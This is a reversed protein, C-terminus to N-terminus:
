LDFNEDDVLDRDKKSQLKEKSEALVVLDRMAYISNAYQEYSNNSPDGFIFKNFSGRNSSDVDRSLLGMLVGRVGADNPNKEVVEQIRNPIIVTESIGGRGNVFVIKYECDMPKVDTNFREQFIEATGKKLQAVVGSELLTRLKHITIAGNNDKIANEILGIAADKDPILTNTFLEFYEEVTEVKERGEKVLKIKVAKMFREKQDPDGKLDIMMQAIEPDKMDSVLDSLDDENGKERLNNIHKATELKNDDLSVIRNGHEIGM